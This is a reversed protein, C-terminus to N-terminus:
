LAYKHSVQITYTGSANDVEVKEINDVINDGKIAAAPFMQFNCNVLFILKKM